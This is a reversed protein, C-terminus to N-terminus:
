RDGLNKYRIGDIDIPGANMLLFRTMKAKRHNRTYDKSFLPLTLNFYDEKFALGFLAFDISFQTLESLDEGYATKFVPIPSIKAIKGGISPDNACTQNTESAMLCVKGWM